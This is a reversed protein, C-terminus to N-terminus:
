KPASSREILWLDDRASTSNYGSCYGGVDAGGPRAGQLIPVKTNSDLWKHIEAHGDAFSFGCAGNHYSAPVDDWAAPINPWLLAPPMRVGFLGDNISDPHEDLFVWTSSPGPRTFDSEKLFARYASYGYGPATTIEITGGVFGSMAYSRVRPGNAAALKDAPCKYSGLSSAMYSGLAGDLIKQKDINDTANGWTLWGAVWDTLAPNISGGTNRVLKGSNDGAYITSAVMLQRLNNVCSIGEAKARAKSLAPLLMAALIAIIAIVVLLEILTFGTVNRKRNPRCAKITRPSKM